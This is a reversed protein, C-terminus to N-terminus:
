SQAALDILQEGIERTSPFPFRLWEAGAFIESKILSQQGTMFVDTPSSLVRSSCTAIWPAPIMAMSSTLRM